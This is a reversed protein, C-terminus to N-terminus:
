HNNFYEEICMNIAGQVPDGLPEVLYDSFDSHILPKYFTGLGGLLCFPYSKNFGASVISKEIIEVESRLIEEANKDGKLHFDFVLPAYNSFDKPKFDYSAKVLNIIKNNFEGMLQITLASHKQLKEECRIATRLLNQGLKAGSGDDGLTFGWGGIQKVTGNVRGIYVSGTGIAAICGDSPGIAGELTIASDNVILNKKFPLRNTLKKDFDGMNSGALGLVAYSDYLLSESLSAKILAKKCTSVINNEAESFSTEINAPGGTCRSLIHGQQDALGVRCGTGGGDVGFVYSM